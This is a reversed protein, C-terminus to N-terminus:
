SPIGGTKQNFPSIVRSILPFERLDCTFGPMPTWRQTLDDEDSFRPEIGTFSPRAEDFQRKKTLPHDFDAM